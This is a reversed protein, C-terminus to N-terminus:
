VSRGNQGEVIPHVEPRLQATLGFHLLCGCLAAGSMETGQRCSSACQQKIWM